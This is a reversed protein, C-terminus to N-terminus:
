SHITLCVYYNHYEIGSLFYTCHAYPIISLLRMCTRFLLVCSCDTDALSERGPTHVDVRRSVQACSSAGTDDLVIVLGSGGKLEENSELSGGVRLAPLVLLM